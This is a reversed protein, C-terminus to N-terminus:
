FAYVLRYLSTNRSAVVYSYSRRPFASATMEAAFTRAAWWQTRVYDASRENVHSLVYQFVADRVQAITLHKSDVNLAMWGTVHFGCQLFRKTLLVHGAMTCSALEVVDYPTNKADATRTCGLVPSSGNAGDSALIILDSRWSLCQLSELGIDVLPERLM